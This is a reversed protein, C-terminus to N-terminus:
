ILIDDSLLGLLSDYAWILVLSGIGVSAMLVRSQFPVPHPILL